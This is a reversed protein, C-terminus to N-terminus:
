LQEEHIDEPGLGMIEVQYIFDNIKTAIDIIQHNPYDILAELARQKVNFRMENHSCLMRMGDTRLLRSFILCWVDLQRDQNGKVNANNMCNMILKVEKAVNNNQEALADAM